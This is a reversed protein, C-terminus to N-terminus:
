PCRAPLVKLLNGNEDRYGGDRMQYRIKGPDSPDPHMVRWEGNSFEIAFEPERHWSASKLRQAAEEGYREAFYQYDPAPSGTSFVHIARIISRLRMAVNSRAIYRDDGENAHQFLEIVQRRASEAEGREQTTMLEADAQGLLKNQEALGEEIDKLKDAVTSPQVGYDAILELTRLRLSDLRALEGKIDEIRRRLQERKEPQAENPFVAALDIEEVFNLISTEVDVYRLSKARACRKKTAGSCALYTGGKPRAGKNVFHMSSRCYGCRVLGSFLNSMQVGKRGGGALKRVGKCYQVRNFQEESIISPYYNSVPGGEAVRKGSILRNPQYEGLVARNALIKAVSSKAWGKSPGFTSIDDANLRHTIAFHGMGNLAYEYIREVVQVREPIKKFGDCTPSLWFPCKRTVRRQGAERRKREWAAAGRVSKMQSEEHARQLTVLALMLDGFSTNADYVHSDWLTAIKIGANIIQLFLSTAATIQQRSLRDLSEVILYSGPQVDNAEIARLFKGLAAGESTNAGKFASVGIDKMHGASVLELNHERAFKEAKEIQRRHSDGALQGLTSMRVYSYALPRPTTMAQCDYWLHDFYDVMDQHDPGGPCAFRHEGLAQRRDQGRHIRALHQLHAHDSRECPFERAALQRSSSWEARGMMRRAHRCEDATAHAGLGAFHRKGMVADEEEVFQRFELRPNELRQPLRELGALGLDGAGIVVDGIGGTELKDCGHIRAAAPHRSLGAVDAALTRATRSVVLPTDRAREEVPEVDLDFQRRDLGGVERHRWGLFAAGFDGCPHSGCPSALAVAELAQAMRLDGCIGTRIPFDEFLDCPGIFGAQPEQTFRGIRHRERRAAIMADESHRAREGIKVPAIPHRADVDGLRQAIALPEGGEPQRCSRM